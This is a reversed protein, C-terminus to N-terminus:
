FSTSLKIFIRNVTKKAEQDGYVVYGVWNKWFTYKLVADLNRVNDSGIRIRITVWKERGIDYNLSTRTSFDHKRHGDPFKRRLDEGNIGISFNPFLIFNSSLTLFTAKSGEYDGYNCIIKTRDLEQWNYIFQIATHGNDFGDHSWDNRIIGFSFKSRLNLSVMEFQGTRTLEGAHNWHRNGVFELNLTQIITEVPKWSYKLWLSAERDDKLPIYGNLANFNEGIDRYTASFSIPIDGRYISSYFAFDNDTIEPTWSKASAISLSVDYPLSFGSDISITRNYEGDSEERGVYLLGLTSTKAINSKTRIALNNSSPSKAQVDMLAFRSGGIKGIMKVGYRMKKIRRSYFLSIPTRFIRGDEQFFPRRDTLRQEIDSLVIGQIESEVHSYDPNLTGFASLNSSFRYAVDIGGQLGFDVEPELESRVATYLTIKERDKLVVKGFQLETLVGFKDELFFNVGTDAWGQTEDRWRQIRVFNIGWTQVLKDSFRLISFPIAMEAIWEDEQISTATKWQGDWGLDGYKRDRQTGKPNVAFHYANRRDHYTDLYVNVNDDFKFDGDRRTQNANISEPKSDFCRFAIYLNEADYAVYAETRDIPATGREVNIFDKVKAAKEWCVDNLKGDITPPIDIKVATIKKSTANSQSEIEKTTSTLPSWFYVTLVLVFAFVSLSIRNM